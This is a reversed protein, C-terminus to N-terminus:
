RQLSLFVIIYAPHANEPAIDIRNGGFRIHAFRRLLCATTPERAPNQHKIYPAHAKMAANAYLLADVLEIDVSKKSEVETNSNPQRISLLV